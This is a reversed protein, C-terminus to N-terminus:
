SAPRARGAAGRPRGALRRLLRQRGVRGAGASAPPDRGGPPPPVGGWSAGTRELVVRGHRPRTRGPEEFILEGNDRPLATRRRARRGDAPRQGAGASVAVGGAARGHRDHLRPHGARELVEETLGDTGAPRMPVVLYRVEASSDWVRIEVEDLLELGFERLVARPEAVVRARYPLSKYWTPPLGLVPWPYCSCAHVVVNHVTPTNAVAVLTDAEAGGFGLEAIAKTGDALLRERFGPDTWARWWRPATRRASTADRVAGRGRRHRRRRGPGERGAAGGPCSRAPGAPDPRPHHDHRHETVRGGGPLEGVPGAGGDMATRAEAGCSMPASPSRTSPRSRRTRVTSPWTLRSGPAGSASWWASPAACMAPAAPTVPRACAACGCARAPAFRPRTAPQMPVVEGLWEVARAAQEPDRHASPEPGGAALREMM